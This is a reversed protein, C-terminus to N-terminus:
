RSRGHWFIINGCYECALSALHTDLSLMKSSHFSLSLAIDTSLSWGPWMLHCTIFSQWAHGCTVRHSVSSHVAPGQWATSEHGRVCGTILTTLQEKTGLEFNSIFTQLLELTLVFLTWLQESNSHWFYIFMFIIKWGYKPQIYYIHIPWRHTM